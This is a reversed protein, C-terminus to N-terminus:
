GVFIDLAIIDIGKGREAAAQTIDFFMALVRGSVEAFNPM